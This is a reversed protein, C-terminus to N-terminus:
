RCLLVRAHVCKSWQNQWQQFCRHFAEKPIKRLEATANLKIDERTAFCTGKIGMKLTLFLWFDSPTLDPSYPPQIIVPINKEALFQQEVLSTHSLTNDHHLFCQGQWKNRRKRRVANCLGQLVQVYFHGTVTGVEEELEVITMRRDCRILQRVKGIMEETRSTSPRRGCHDDELTEQGTKFRSFWHYVASKKLATDGYIQQLASLTESSSKAFKCM